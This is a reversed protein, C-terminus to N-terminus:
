EVCSSVAVTESTEVDVAGAEVCVIMTVLRTVGAGVVVAVAIVVVVVVTKFV